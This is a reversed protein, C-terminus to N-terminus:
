QGIEGLWDFLVEIANVVCLLLAGLALLTLAEHPQTVFADQTESYVEINLAGYALAIWVVSGVVSALLAIDDSETFLAWATVAVAIALLAIWAQILM